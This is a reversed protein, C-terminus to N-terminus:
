GHIIKNEKFHAPMIGQLSFYIEALDAHREPLLGQLAYLSYLLVWNKWEDATFHGYNTAINTPVRGTDSPVNFLGRM